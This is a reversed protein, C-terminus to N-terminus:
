LPFHFAFSHSTRLGWSVGETVELFDGAESAMM